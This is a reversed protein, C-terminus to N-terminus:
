KKQKTIAETLQKIEDELKGKNKKFQELTIKNAQIKTNIEQKPTGESSSNLEKEFEKTSQNITAIMSNIIKLEEQKEKLITQNKELTVGVDYIAEDGEPQVKPLPEALPIYIKRDDKDYAYTFSYLQKIKNYLELDSNNDTKLEKLIQKLLGVTMNEIIYINSKYQKIYQKIYKEIKQIQKVDITIFNKINLTFLLKDIIYFNTNDKINTYIEYLKEKKQTYNSEQIETNLQEYYNSYIQFPNNDDDNIIVPVAQEGM